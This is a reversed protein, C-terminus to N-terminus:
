LPVGVTMSPIDSGSAKGELLWKEIARSFDEFMVPKAIYDDMGASSCRERAGSLAEATMAIIVVHQGPTETRRIERTAEYGDIEPMQCDMFVADYPLARMMRIAEKGNGAVDARLGFKELMRVAVRQNVVNDDAVLVRLGAGAGERALVASRRPGVLSQAGRHLRLARTSVLTNLLQGQRVPKTLSADVFPGESLLDNWNGTRSMVSTLM